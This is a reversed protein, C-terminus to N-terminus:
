LVYPDIIAQIHAVLSTTNSTYEYDSNPYAPNPFVVELVFKDGEKTIHGTVVDNYLTGGYEGSKCEIQFNSGVLAYNYAPNEIIARWGEGINEVTTTIRYTASQMGFNVVYPFLYNMPIDIEVWNKATEYDTNLKFNSPKTM